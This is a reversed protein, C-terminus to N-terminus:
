LCEREARLKAKEEKRDKLKEKPTVHIADGEASVVEEEDEVRAKIVMERSREERNVLWSRVLLVHPTKVGRKFRTVM